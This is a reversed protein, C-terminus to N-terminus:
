KVRMVLAFGGPPGYLDNLICFQMDSEIKVARGTSAIVGSNDMNIYYMELDAILTKDIISGTKQGGNPFLFSPSHVLVLAMAGLPIPTNHNGVDPKLTTIVGTSLNGTVSLNGNITTNGYIYTPMVISFSGARSSVLRADASSASCALEFYIYNEQTGYEDNIRVYLKHSAYDLYTFKVLIPDFYYSNETILNLCGSNNYTTNGISFLTHTSLSTDSDTVPVRIYRACIKDWADDETGIFSSAQKPAIQDAILKPTTITSNCVVPDNFTKDGLITQDEGADPDGDAHTTVTREMLREHDGLSVNAASNVDVDGADGITLNFAVQVSTQMESTSPIYISADPDSQAMIVVADSDDQSALRGTVAVTKVECETPQNTYEAIIRAVNSTASTTKIIGAASTLDGPTVNVLTAADMYSESSLTQVFVIKNASSAQAILNKGASTLVRNQFEM